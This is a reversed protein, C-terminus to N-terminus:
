QQPPRGGVADYTGYSTTSIEYLSGDTLVIIRIAISVDL